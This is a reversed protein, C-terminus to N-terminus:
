RIELGYERLLQGSPLSVRVFYTGAALAAFKVGAGKAVNSQRVQRGSDSVIEVHYSAAETLGTVDPYLLLDRGKPATSGPGAGRMALLTVSVPRAPSASIWRAIGVTLLVGCAVAAVAPFWVPLRWARHRSAAVQREHLAAAQMALVYEDTSALQDRCPECTLLHEELVATDEPSIGGLSYQELEDEDVHRHINRM